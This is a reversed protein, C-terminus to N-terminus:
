GVFIIALCVMKGHTKQCSRVGKTHEAVCESVKRFYKFLKQVLLDFPNNAASCGGGLDNVNLTSYQKNDYNTQLVISKTDPLYMRTHM